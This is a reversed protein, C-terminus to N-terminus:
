NGKGMMALTVARIDAEIEHVARMDRRQMAAQRDRIMAERLSLAESPHYDLPRQSRPAPKIPADKATASGVGSKRHFARIFGLADSNLQRILAAFSANHWM